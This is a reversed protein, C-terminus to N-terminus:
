VVDFFALASVSLIIYSIVKKIGWEKRTFSFFLLGGLLLTIVERTMRFEATQWFKLSNNLLFAMYIGVISFAYFLFWDKLKLQKVDIILKNRISKDIILFIAILTFLVLGETLVISIPNLKIEDVLYDDFRTAGWGILSSLIFLTSLGYLNKSFNEGLM